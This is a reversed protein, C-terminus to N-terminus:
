AGYRDGFVFAETEQIDKELSAKVAAYLDRVSVMGVVRGQDVVPLHRYGRVRMLELADFASDDPSLTDPDKSMIDGLVTSKPDHNDAVVRRTLDRETVIGILKGDEDTIVVAACHHAVMAKAAELATGSSSLACISQDKVIDPIIKPHM